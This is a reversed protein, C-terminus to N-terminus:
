LLSLSFSNFGGRRGEKRGKEDREVCHGEGMQM